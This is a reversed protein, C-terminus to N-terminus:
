DCAARDACALRAGAPEDRNGRSWSQARRARRRAADRDRAALRGQQLALHALRLPCGLPPQLLSLALLPVPGLYLSMWEIQSVYFCFGGVYGVWFSQWFGLTRVSYLLAIVAIFIMPWLGERPYALSSIFGGGIALGFRGLLHKLGPGLFRLRRETKAM